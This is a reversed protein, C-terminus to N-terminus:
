RFYRAKKTNAYERCLLPQTLSPFSSAFLILKRYYLAKMLHVSGWFLEQGSNNKDVWYEKSRSSDELYDQFSAHYFRPRGNAIDQADPIRLVSHLSRLASIAADRKFDLLNCICRLGCDSSNVYSRELFIFAGLLRKTTELLGPSIRSLIETYLADLPALPNEQDMGAVRSLAALVCELQAVPNNIWPDDIFRVIVSAFAFLGSAGKAIQLFQVNNPWISAPILDPYDERIRTFETHLFKEVDRCAEESDVPVEEEWFSPRVQENYFVAKLHPEPRSSIVWVLPVTPYQLVFGSILRVIECQARDSHRGYAHVQNSRGQGGPDGGCEDLGDLAVVFIGTESRINLRAFPEVILIRFQESMSKHLCNPDIAVLDGLYSRYARDRVAFQYALTPFVHQPNNRGHPRSFFLAAGLRGASAQHEALTQIIASKGVGAPGHLWWLKTQREDGRIWSQAREIISERTGPHCRPPPDRESSDFEAGHMTYVGLWQLVLRSQSIPKLFFIIPSVM